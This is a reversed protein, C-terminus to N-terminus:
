FGKTEIGGMKLELKKLASLLGDGLALPLLGSLKRSEHAKGKRLALSDM